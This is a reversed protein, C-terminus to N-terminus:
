HGSHDRNSPGVDQSSHEAGTDLSGAPTTPATPTTVQPHDGAHDDAHDGGVSGHDGSSGATGPPTSQHQGSSSDQGHQGAKCHDDSAIKCVQEGVTGAAPNTQATHAVDSMGPGNDTQDSQGHDDGSQGATAAPHDGDQRHTSSNGHNPTPLDVGVHSVAGAVASQVPDPLSGTAAAAGSATLAVVGIAALAKGALLKSLMSKRRQTQPTSASTRIAEVMATVTTAAVEENVTALPGRAASVLLGAAAGYGPPADDPHVLGQLMRSASDDDLPHRNPRM